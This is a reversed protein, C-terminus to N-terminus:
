EGKMRQKISQIWCKEGLCMDGGISLKDFTSKMWEEDEESWEAPNQEVLEFYDQYSINWVHNNECFYYNNDITVIKYCEDVGKHRINDGVKFKPEVKDTPKQDGQKELWSLLKSYDSACISCKGGEYCLMLIEHLKEKMVKDEDEKLEPFIYEYNERSISDSEWLRLGRELADEYKQKYDM